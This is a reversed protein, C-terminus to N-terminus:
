MEMPSQFKQAANSQAPAIEQTRTRSFLTFEKATHQQRRSEHHASFVCCGSPAAHHMERQESAHACQRLDPATACVKGNHTTRSFDSIEARPAAAHSGPTTFSSFSRTAFRADGNRASERLQRCMYTHM